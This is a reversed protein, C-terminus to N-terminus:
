STAEHHMGDRSWFAGASKWGEVAFFEMVQIPMDASVPWHSRNGNSNPRLDIAAGRAHLSPLSGGRIPRDNYCGAYDALVYQWASRQIATLVRKLSAAVKHHCRITRVMDDDYLICLDRVDLNVLQSEDGPDGYFATLSAQDTAPWPNITPMLSRLYAQCAATSKPGWFGDPVAGIRKQLAIIENHTM